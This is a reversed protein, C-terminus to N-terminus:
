EMQGLVRFIEEPTTIKQALAAEAAQKIGTQHNERAMAELSQTDKRDRIAQRMPGDITLLEALLFRGHYGTGFCRECDSPSQNQCRDCIKRVLRQNLIGRLSSNLLYPEIGM